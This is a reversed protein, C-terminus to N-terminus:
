IKGKAQMADLDPRAKQGAADPKTPVCAVDTKAISM